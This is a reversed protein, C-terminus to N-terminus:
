MTGKYTDSVFLLQCCNTVDTSEDLQIAFGFKSAKIAATMLVAIDVSMEKVRRKVTDNSLSVSDLKVADKEGILNRALIKAAPLVLSEAITHAKM